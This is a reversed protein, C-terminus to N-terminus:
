AQGGLLRQGVEATAGAIGSQCAQEMLRNAQEGIANLDNDIWNSTYGQENLKAAATTLSPFLETRAESLHEALTGAESMKRTAEPIPERMARVADFASLEDAQALDAQDEPIALGAQEYADGQLVQLALPEAQTLLQKLEAENASQQDLVTQNVSDHSAFASM